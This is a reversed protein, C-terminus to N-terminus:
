KGLREDEFVVKRIVDGHCAQPACFCELAVTCSVNMLMEVINGIAPYAKNGFKKIEARLWIEYKAISDERTYESLPFPNGLPSPRGIYFKPISAPVRDKHRNVIQIEYLRCNHGQCQHLKQM